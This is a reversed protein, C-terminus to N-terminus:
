VLWFIDFTPRGIGIVSRVAWGIRSIKAHNQMQKANARCLASALRICLGGQVNVRVRLLM